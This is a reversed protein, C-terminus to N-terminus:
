IQLQKLKKKLKPIKHHNGFMKPNNNSLVYQIGENYEKKIDDLLRNIEAKEELSHYNRM